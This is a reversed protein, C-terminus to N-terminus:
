CCVAGFCCTKAWASGTTAAGAVSATGSVGAGAASGYYLSAESSESAWLKQTPATVV